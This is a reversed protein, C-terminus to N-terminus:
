GAHTGGPGGCGGPQCPCACSHARSFAPHSGPESGPLRVSLVTQLLSLIQGPSSEYNASSTPEGQRCHPGGGYGGEMPVYSVLYQTKLSKGEVVPINSPAGINVTSTIHKCNKPYHLISLFYFIICFHEPPRFTGFIAFFMPFFKNTQKMVYFPANETSPIFM